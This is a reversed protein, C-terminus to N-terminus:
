DVLEKLRRPDNALLKLLKSMPASTAVEGSEYRQFARPGGGLIESAKRQSLKLKRRIARVQDPRLMDGAEAKLRALAADSAKMDKGSHLSEAKVGPPPYWGGMMFTTSRGKYVITMKRVGRTLIAGTEPCRRQDKRM